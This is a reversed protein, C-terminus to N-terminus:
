RLTDSYNDTHWFLTGYSPRKKQQFKIQQKTTNKLRLYVVTVKVLISIKGTRHCLNLYLHITKISDKVKNQRFQAGVCYIHLIM